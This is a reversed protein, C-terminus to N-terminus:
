WHLKQKVGDGALLDPVVAGLVRPARRDIAADSDQALLYKFSRRNGDPQGPSGAAGSRPDSARASINTYRGSWRRDHCSRRRYDGIRWVQKIQRQRSSFSIRRTSPGALPSGSQYM